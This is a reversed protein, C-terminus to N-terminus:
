LTGQHSEGGVVHRTTLLTGFFIVIHSHRTLRLTLNSSLETWM